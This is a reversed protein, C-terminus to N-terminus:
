SLIDEWAERAGDKLGRVLEYSRVANEAEKLTFPLSDVQYQATPNIYMYVKSDREFISYNDNDHHPSKSVEIMYDIIKGDKNPMKFYYEYYEGDNYPSSIPGKKEEIHISM